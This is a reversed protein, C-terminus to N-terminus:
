PQAQLEEGSPKSAIRWATNWEFFLRLTGTSDQLSGRHKTAKPGHIGSCSFLVGHVKLSEACTFKATSM